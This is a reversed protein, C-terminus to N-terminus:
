RRRQLQPRAPSLTTAAAASLAASSTDSPPESLVEAPPNPPSHTSLTAQSSTITLQSTTPSLPPPTQAPQSLTPQPPTSHAPSTFHIIPQTAPGFPLGLSGFALPPGVPILDLPTSPSRAVDDRIGGFGLLHGYTLPSSPSSLPLSALAAAAPFGREQAPLSLLACNKPFLALLITVLSSIKEAHSFPGSFRRPRGWQLLVAGLAAIAVSAFAILAISAVLASTGHLLGSSAQSISNAPSDSQFSPVSTLISSYNRCLFGDKWIESSTQRHGKYIDAVAGATELLDTRMRAIKSAVYEKHTSVSNILNFLEQACLKVEEEAQAIAAELELKSTKLFEAAENEVVSMSHAELDVEDALKRAEAACRSTYEHTDKRIMNLQAEVEDIHSQLAAIHNRREELKATNEGSQQRLSILEELKGMSSRKIDESFLALAPKLVSKYDLGLVDSPTLGRANLQYQFGNGIKLRRIAQNAEMVLRELDKFKHGIEPDLEWIKEEWGNRASETEEIDREVAQLERKMREADRLNIGQEEVRKKLEENEECIKKRDEVKAEVAKGKEELKKQVETLHSLLQEIMINFKTIDKELVAKEQELCEKQTPGAKMADLKSELEKVNEEFGKVREELTDKWETMERICDEDLADIKDDDGSIFLLYSNVTYMFMKDGEFNPPPTMTYDKYKIIQVLWHIVALLNPWSHPTGPARLASKNLKFPCNLFKLAHGLDEDIKQSTFGLRHLLFKLTETVDKASPLPPKLAFPVSQSALYSNITRLAAFQHSRDSFNPLTTSPRVVSATSPRSSCFSADSERGPVPTALFHWPDATSTPTPPPPRRDPGISETPRRRGRM